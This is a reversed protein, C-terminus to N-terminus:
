LTFDQLKGKQIWRNTADPIAKFVVMDGWEKDLGWEKPTQELTAITNYFLIGPYVEPDRPALLLKFSNASMLTGCERASLTLLGETSSTTTTNFASSGFISVYADPDMDRLFVTITAGRYVEFDDFDVGKTKSKLPLKTLSLTFALREHLGLRTGMGSAFNGSSDIGADCDTPNKFLVGPIRYSKLVSRAAM